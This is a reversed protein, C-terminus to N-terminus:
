NADDIKDPLAFARGFMSTDFLRYQFPLSDAFPYKKRFELVLEDFSPRDEIYYRWPITEQACDLGFHGIYVIENAAVQFTGGKPTGNEFLHDTTAAIHGVNRVSRAVKVDFASIAYTGPELVYTYEAFRDDVFLKSPTKLDLTASSNDLPVKSFALRQLQANESGACGWHRGWNIQLTVIGMEPMGKAFSAADLAKPQDAAVSLSCAFVLVAFLIHRTLHSM